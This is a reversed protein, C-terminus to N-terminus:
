VQFVYGWLAVGVGCAEKLVVSDVTERENLRAYHQMQRLLRYSNAAREGLPLPILGADQARQLLAINGVDEELAPYQWVYALILYQVCFEIDLMGGHGHKVDMVGERLPYADRVRERMALVEARLAGRDRKATIVQHRVADFRQTMEPTGVACRARTLAQHEWTWATNSGRGLQYSEFADVSSVLLGSNGNPRLSTDIEFLDGESTKSTLWTILKRVHASYVEGSRENDDDYIFVIDLDSGYGLEIGGLKGYAIIGIKPKERHKHALYDWSWELAVKLTVDALASLDDAVQEVTLHGDIDRALTRFFEAHHARRLVNMLSEEDEEETAKLADRRVLLLQEYASRDFRGELAQGDRLEDMVGPYRRLYLVAWYAKDFLRLLRQHILPRELLLAQYSERRLIADLWDVFRLVGAETARGQELWQVSRLILHSLSGKIREHVGKVRMSQAWYHVRERINEPLLAEFAEEGLVCSTTQSYAIPNLDESAAGTTLCLLEDFQEAILERCRQLKAYMHALAGSQGNDAVSEFGMSSAIWQVDDEDTPLTHTQLDDLYQIRHEIKRLFVYAEHLHGARQVSLLGAGVLRQLGQLTSSTRIEPFQGGRIVQFLQVAFELERIGGRSLKVDVAQQPKLGEKEAAQLRIKVHTQRLSNLLTFDLYGRYVFSRITQKLKMREEKKQFEDGTTVVVRAKMWAFREWDRGEVEFYDKLMSLSVALPGSNGNPRLALDMRFVFGHETVEGILHHLKKALFNFYEHNSCGTEQKEGDANKVTYGSEEYLYILDIDSSVNLEKGGLKGMGMIWFACRSGDACCPVGYKADLEQLADNLAMHLAVEAWDSMVLMVNELATHAEVDLVVLREIVLQRAVRLASALDYGHENRLQVVLSEMCAIDPVGEQLLTLEVPYRRRIRRVFRSYDARASLVKDNGKM